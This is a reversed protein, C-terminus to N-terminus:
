FQMYIFNALDGNGGSQLIYNLFIMGLIAFYVGWRIIFKKRRFKKIDINFLLVIILFVIMSFGILARLKDRGQLATFFSLNNFNDTLNFVIRKLIEIATETSKSSFFLSGICVIIFTRIIQFIEFVRGKRNIHLIRCTKEFIPEFMEGLIIITAYWMGNGIWYKLDAGHWFGVISWLIILATWTTLKRVLKKGLRKRLKVSIKRNFFLLIPNFVYERMWAGLTIHWRRWFEAATKALFPKNFNEVLKIGFLGSIGIAIDISGAFDSYLEVVYLVMTIALLLGSYVTYESYISNVVIAINDAIVIKKFLGLAIRYLASIAQEYDFVKEKEIEKGLEEKRSIPGTLLQPIFGIFLCHNIFNKEPKCNGNRIDICYGVAQFTYFSLGMPVILGLNKDLILGNYKLVLLIGINIGVGLIWAFFRVPKTLSLRESIKGYIWTTIITSFLYLSVIKMYRIYWVFSFILLLANKINKNKIKYYPILIIFVSVWFLPNLFLM